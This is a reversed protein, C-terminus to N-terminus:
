EEVISDIRWKTLEPQPIVIRGASELMSLLYGRRRDTEIIWGSEFSVNYMENLLFLFWTRVM